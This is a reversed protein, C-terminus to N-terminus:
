ANILRRASRLVVFRSGRKKRSEVHEIRHGGVVIEYVGGKVM